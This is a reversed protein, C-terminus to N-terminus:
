EAPVIATHVADKLDLENRAQAIAQSNMQDGLVVMRITLLMIKFDLLFSANNVYWIDLIMKDSPSIVRGGNVQAWGTLGPRVSLRASNGPSQDRLLLPRPGVLSMHGMLVNFLQPLEDIRMRRLIKGIASSRQDDLIRLSLDDRPPRMTRFKYLKFPRGGLGPRQQWFILPFGIDFAIVVAVVAGVPVLTFVLIAAVLIDILRKAFWFAPRASDRDGLDFQTGARQGFEGKGQQGFLIDPKSDDIGLQESLFQVVIDSSKEVEFLSELASQQLRYSPTTVIIRNIVVGHVELSRLIGQLDEVTGLVPRQRIAHGRMEPEEALIGAVRVQQSAFEELSLLFLESVANMGAVLVTERLQGSVRCNGDSQLRKAYLFRAFSRAFVLFSVSLAGQLVPLSRAVSSLRNLAFTFGLALLIALMTLVIVQLHDAVSSYRWPTRDLGAVLFVVLACGISTVTYQLLMILSQPVTNFNDRLAVAILTAAAVFALDISIRSLRHLGLGRRQRLWM